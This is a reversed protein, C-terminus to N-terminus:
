LAKALAVRRRWGGSLSSMLKGEPLSLRSLVESIKQQFSWGDKAELQHQLQELKKLAAEDMEQALLQDYQNLLDGVEALGSSVVQMVTQDDAKPLEQDLRSIRATPKHWITGGDAKIQGEVIKMLTSKGAGNRGVLCVRDGKYLQLSADELLVHHGYALNLATIKLLPM